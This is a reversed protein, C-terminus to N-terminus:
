IVDCKIDMECLTAKFGLRLTRTLLAVVSTPNIQWLMKDWSKLPQLTMIAKNSRVVHQSYDRILANDLCKLLRLRDLGAEM